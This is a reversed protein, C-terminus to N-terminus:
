NCIRELGGVDKTHLFIYKVLLVFQKTSIRNFMTIELRTVGRHLRMERGGFVSGFIAAKIQYRAAYLAAAYGSAGHGAILLDYVNDDQTTM